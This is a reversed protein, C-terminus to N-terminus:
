PLDEDAQAADIFDFEALLWDKAIPVPNRPVIGLRHLRQPDDFLILDPDFLEADERTAWPDANWKESLLVNGPALPALLYLEDFSLIHNFVLIRKDTPLKDLAALHTPTFFQRTDADPQQVIARAFSVCIAAVLLAIAFGRWASGLAQIQALLRGGLFACSLLVGLAFREPWISGVLDRLLIMAFPVCPVAIIALDIWRNGRVLPASGAVAAVVLLPSAALTARLALAAREEAIMENAWARASGFPTAWNGTVIHNMWFWFLPFAAIVLASTTWAAWWAARRDRCEAWTRWAVAFGWLAIVPWADYRSACAIMGGLTFLMARRCLSSEGRAPRIALWAVVLGALFAPESLVSATSRLVVPVSLLLAASWAGGDLDSPRKGGDWAWLAIAGAILLANAITARWLLPEAQGFGLALWALLPPLPPWYTMWITLHPDLLGFRVLHLRFFDDHTPYTRLLILCAMWAALAVAACAIAAAPGGARRPAPAQEADFLGNPNVTDRRRSLNRHRHAM